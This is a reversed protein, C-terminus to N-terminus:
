HHARTHSFINPGQRRCLDGVRGLHTKAAERAQYLASTTLLIGPNGLHPVDWCDNECFHGDQAKEHLDEGTGSESQYALPGDDM